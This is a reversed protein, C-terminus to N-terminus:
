FTNRRDTSIVAVFRINRLSPTAGGSVWSLCARDLSTARCGQASGMEGTDQLQAEGLPDFLNHDLIPTLAVGPRGWKILRPIIVGGGVPKDGPDGAAAAV